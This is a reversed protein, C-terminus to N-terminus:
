PTGARGVRRLGTEAPGVIVPEQTEYGGESRDGTFAFVFLREGRGPLRYVARLLVEPSGWTTFEFEPEREWRARVRYRVVQGPYADHLSDRAM